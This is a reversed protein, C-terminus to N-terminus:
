AFRACIAQQQATRFEKGDAAKTWSDYLRHLGEFEKAFGGGLDKRIEAIAPELLNWLLSVPHCRFAGHLQAKSFNKFSIAIGEWTGILLRLAAYEDSNKDARALKAMDDASKGSRRVLRFARQYETGSRLQAVHMIVDLMEHKTM